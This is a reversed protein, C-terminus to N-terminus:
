AAKVAKGDTTPRAFGNRILGIVCGVVTAIPMDVAEAIEQPTLIIAGNNGYMKCAERHSLLQFIRLAKRGCKAEVAVDPGFQKVERKEIKHGLTDALEAFSTMVAM